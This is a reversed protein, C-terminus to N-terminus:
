TFFVLQISPDKSIIIKFIIKKLLECAPLLIKEEILQRNNEM